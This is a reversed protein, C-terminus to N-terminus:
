SFPPLTLSRTAVVHQQRRTNTHTTRVKVTLKNLQRKLRVEEKPDSDPTKRLKKESIVMKKVLVDEGVSDRSMTEHESMMEHMKQDLATLIDNQVRSDFMKLRDMRQSLEDKTHEADAHHHEAHKTNGSGM